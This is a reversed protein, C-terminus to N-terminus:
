EKTLRLIMKWLVRRMLDEKGYLSRREWNSRLNGFVSRPVVLIDSYVPYKFEGMKRNGRGGACWSLGRNVLIARFWLFMKGFSVLLIRINRFIAQVPVVGLSVQKYKVQKYKCVLSAHWYRKATKYQCTGSLLNEQLLLYRSNRVIVIVFYKFSICKLM